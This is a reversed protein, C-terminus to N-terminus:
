PTRFSSAITCSRIGFRKPNSGIRSIWTSQGIFLPPKPPRAGQVNFQLVDQVRRALDTDLAKSPSEARAVLDHLDLVIVVFSTSLPSRPTTELMSMSSPSSLTSKSPRSTVYPKPSSSSSTSAYAVVIWLLWPDSYAATTM